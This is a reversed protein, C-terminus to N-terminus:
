LNMEVRVGALIREFAGAGCDRNYLFSDLGTATFKTKIVRGNTYDVYDNQALRQAAAELSMDSSVQGLGSLGQSKSGRWLAQLLRAFFEKKREESVGDLFSTDIAM